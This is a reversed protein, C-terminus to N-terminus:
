LLQRSGKLARQFDSNVIVCLKDGCAKAKRFYEIHGVHLPNFYGSVIIVKKCTDEPLSFVDIDKM